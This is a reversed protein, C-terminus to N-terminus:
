LTESAFFDTYEYQNEAIEKYGVLKLTVDSAQGKNHIDILGVNLGGFPNEGHKIPKLLRTDATLGGSLEIEKTLKLPSKSIETEFKKMRNNEGDLLMQPHYSIYTVNWAKLRQLASRSPLDDIVKQLAVRKQPWYGQVGGTINQHHQTKWNM